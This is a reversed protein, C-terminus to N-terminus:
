QDMDVQRLLSPPPLSSISDRGMRSAGRTKCLHTVREYQPPDIFLQNVNHTWLHLRSQETDRPRRNSRYSRTYADCGAEGNQSRAAGHRSAWCVHAHSDVLGAASRQDSYESLLRPRLRHCGVYKARMKNGGAANVAYRTSVMFNSATWGTSPILQSTVLGTQHTGM